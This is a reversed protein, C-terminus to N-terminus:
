TPSFRTSALFSLLSLLAVPLAYWIGLEAGVFSADLLPILIIMMGVVSRLSKRGKEFNVWGTIIIVATLLVLARGANRSLIWLLFLLFIIVLGLVVRSSLNEESQEEDSLLTLLVIYTFLFVPYILLPRLVFGVVTLGVLFNLARPLGMGLASLFPIAKLVANYLLVSLLLCTTILGTLTGFCFGLLASFVMLVFGILFASSLPVQGSPLPREPRLARDRKIDVIDNFICGMAYASASLLILGLSARFRLDGATAILYGAM